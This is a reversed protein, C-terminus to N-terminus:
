HLSSLKGYSGTAFGLLPETLLLFKQLGLCNGKFFGCVSKESESGRLELVLTAAQHAGTAYPSSSFHRDNLGCSPYNGRLCFPSCLGNDSESGEGGFLWLALLITGHRLSWLRALVTQEARPIGQSEM